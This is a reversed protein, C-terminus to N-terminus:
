AIVTGNQKITRLVNLARLPAETVDAASAMGELLAHVVLGNGNIDLIANIRLASLLLRRSSALFGLITM